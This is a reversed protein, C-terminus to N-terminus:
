YVYWASSHEYSIYIVDLGAWSENIIHWVRLTDQAKITGSLLFKLYPLFITKFVM